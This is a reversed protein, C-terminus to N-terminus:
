ADKSRHLAALGAPIIATLRASKHEAIVAVRVRKYM